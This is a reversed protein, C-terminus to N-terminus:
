GCSRAEDTRRCVRCVQYATPQSRSLTTCDARTHAKRGSTSIWVEQPPGEGPSTQTGADVCRRPAARLLTYVRTTFVTALILLISLLLGEAMWSKHEVALTTAETEQASSGAALLLMALGVRASKSVTGVLAVGIENFRKLGVMDICKALSERSLHKTGMDPPHETGRVKLLRVHKTAVLQQLWLYKLEMHRVKGLGHRSGIAIASSADIQLEIGPTYGWFELITRVYLCEAAVACAGYYESEPSSLAIVSQTRSFMTIPIGGWSVFGCSTSKRTARCGAWDSDAQGTVKSTDGNSRMVLALDFTGKLYRCLHKLLKWDCERPNQLQRGLEKLTYLVDPRRPSAYQLKGCAARYQRHREEGIYHEDEPHKMEQRAGATSVPNCTSMDMIDLVSEIYGEKSAEIITDKFRWYRAGLFVQPKEGLPPNVRVPIHKNLEEYFWRINEIPGSTLPDDVHIIVKLNMGRHIFMMSEAGSQEFELGLILKTLYAQFLQAARRLGYLARQLEWVDDGGDSRLEWPMEVYTKEAGEMPTHLFAVSFDAAVLPLSEALAAAIMIRIAETRPTGAYAEDDTPDRFQQAVYRSRVEDGKRRHCWRGGWVKTGPPLSARPVKKGVELKAMFDLERRVGEIARDQPLAAGDDEDYYVEDFKPDPEMPVNIEMPSVYCVSSVYAVMESSGGSGSGRPRSSPPEETSADGDRKEGQAETRKMRKAEAELEEDNPGTARRRLCLTSHVYSRGECCSCGPTYEWSLPHPLSRTVPRGRPRKAVADPALEVSM